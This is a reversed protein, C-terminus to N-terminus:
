RDASKRSFRFNSSVEKFDSKEIYIVSSFTVTHSGKDPNSPFDPVYLWEEGGTGSIINIELPDIVAM